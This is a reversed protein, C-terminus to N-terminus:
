TNVEERDALYEDINNKIYNYASAFETKSPNHGLIDKIDNTLITKIM